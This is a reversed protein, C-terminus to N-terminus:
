SKMFKTWMDVKETTEYYVISTVKPIELTTEHVILLNKKRNRFIGYKHNMLLSSM